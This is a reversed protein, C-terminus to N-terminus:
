EKNKVFNKYSLKIDISENHKWVRASEIDIPCDSLWELVQVQLTDDNQYEITFPENIKM